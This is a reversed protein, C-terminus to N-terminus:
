SLNKVTSDCGKVTTPLMPAGPHYFLVCRQAISGRMYVCVFVCMGVPAAPVEIIVM